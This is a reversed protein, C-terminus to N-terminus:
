LMELVTLAKASRQHEDSQSLNQVTATQFSFFLYYTKYCHTPFSAFNLWVLSFIVSVVEYLIHPFVPSLLGRFLPVSFVPTLRAQSPASQSSNFMMNFTVLFRPSVRLSRAM